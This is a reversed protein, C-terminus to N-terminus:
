HGGKIETGNIKASQSLMSKITAHSPKRQTFSIMQIKVTAVKIVSAIKLHHHQLM